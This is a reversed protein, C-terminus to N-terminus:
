VVVLLHLCRMGLVLHHGILSRLRAAGDIYPFICELACLREILFLHALRQSLCVQRREQSGDLESGITAVGPLTHRHALDLAALVLDNPRALNRCIVDDIRAIRMVSLEPAPLLQQESWSALPHASRVVRAGANM